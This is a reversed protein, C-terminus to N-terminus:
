KLFFLTFNCLNFHKIIKKRNGIKLKEIKNLKQKEFHMNKITSSFKVRFNKRSFQFVIFICKGNKYLPLDHFILEVKYLSINGATSEFSSTNEVKIEQGFLLVTEQSLAVKNSFISHV